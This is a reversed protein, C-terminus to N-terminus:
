SVKSATKKKLQYALWRSRCEKGLSARGIQVVFISDSNRGAAPFNDFRYNGKGYRGAPQAAPSPKTHPYHACGGTAISAFLLAALNRLRVASCRNSRHLRRRRRLSAMLKSVGFPHRTTTTPASTSSTVVM